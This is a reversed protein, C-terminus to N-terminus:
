VKTEQSRCCDIEQLGDNWFCLFFLLLFCFHGVAVFLRETSKHVGAHVPFSFTAECVIERWNGAGIRRVREERRRGDSTGEVTSVKLALDGEERTLFLNWFERHDMWLEVFTRVGM